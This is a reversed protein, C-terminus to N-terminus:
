VAFMLPTQGLLNMQNIDEKEEEVLVILAELDKKKTVYCILPTDKDVEEKYKKQLFNFLFFYLEKLHIKM